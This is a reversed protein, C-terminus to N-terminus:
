LRNPDNKTIVVEIKTSGIEIHDGDNLREASIKKGNLFTGNTSKLDKLFVNRLSLIEILAHNRSADLDNLLVDADVRGLVVSSKRFSLVKGQDKGTLIKLQIQAQGLTKTSTVYTMQQTQDPLAPKKPKASASVEDAIGHFDRIDAFFCITTEGIEIVDQDSLPAEAVPQRNLFTGNTSSLDIIRFGQLSKSIEAHLSSAKADDIIIDAQKRGITTSEKVLPIM